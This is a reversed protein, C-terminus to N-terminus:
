TFRSAVFVVDFIDIINNSDTDANPNYNSNKGFDSTVIILDQIDVVGDRNLDGPIIEASGVYEYAGIDPALGTPVANDERDQRLGVDVGADIAPSTAQPHLDRNEPDVLEPDVFREDPFREQWKDFDLLIKGEGDIYWMRNDGGLGGDARWWINHSFNTNTSEPTANQLFRVYRGPNNNTSTFINNKFVVGKVNDVNSIDVGSGSNPGYVITNHYAKFNTTNGHGMGFSVGTNYIISRIVTVNTSTGVLIGVSSEDHSYFKDVLVNSAGHAITMSGVGNNFGECNRITINNGATIDFAQEACGTGVNNELLHNSGVNYGSGDRHLTICDNSRVNFVTNDRIVGNSAQYTPSGYIVIGSNPIDWVTCNDITFTNTQRFMIGNNSTVTVKCNQIVINSANQSQVNIGNQGSPSGDVKWYEIKVYKIGPAYTMVVIDQFEPISGNGYAGFTIYGGAKSGSCTIRFQDLPLNENTGTWVEGRKFLISDGPNYSGMMTRAKEMTKWANAPSTGNNGDDGGTADVYYNVANALCSLLVFMLGLGIFIKKM